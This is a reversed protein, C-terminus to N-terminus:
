PQEFLASVLDACRELQDLTVFEDPCHANAIDGPGCIVVTAGLADALLGGETGFSISGARGRDALREVLAVADNDAPTALPPYSVTETVEVEGGVAGLEARVLEIEARVSALMDDPDVGAQHRVEFDLEARDAIVNVLRGGAITGVNVSCGEPRARNIADLALTIRAVGTIASPVDAARSSHAEISTVTVRYVRKGPNAIRPLLSTPEGVVVLRPDHVESALTALVDRVGRCGVEEDYSAVIHVPRTWSAPDHRDFAALTAAFFGKMDATGRGVVRDGVVTATWPDNSWGEGPPVVDTHGSLVLGGPVDPGFRAVLNAREPVSGPHVTVHAGRGVLEAGLWDLLALNSTGSVTPFAVLARLDDLM